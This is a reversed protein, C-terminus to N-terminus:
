INLCEDSDRQALALVIRHDTERKEQRVIEKEAQKIMTQYDEIREWIGAKSGNKAYYIETLCARRQAKYEKIENELQEILLNMAGGKAIHELITPRDLRVRRQEQTVMSQYPEEKSSLRTDEQGREKDIEENTSTDM